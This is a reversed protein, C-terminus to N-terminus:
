RLVEEEIYGQPALTLLKSELLVTVESRAASEAAWWADSLAASEAAWWAAWWAASEAASRAASEAASRAAWWAASLEADNAEGRVWRRKSEIAAWSREDPERGAAREQELAQEAVYCGFEHLVSSADAVWLHKRVSSCLKDADRLVEGSHLTRSVIASNAYGLADIARVSGHLGRECLELPPKVRYSVGNALPKPLPRGAFHWALVRESM